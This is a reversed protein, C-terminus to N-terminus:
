LRAVPADGSLWRKRRPGWAGQDSGRSREWGQLRSPGSGAGQLPSGVTGLWCILVFSVAITMTGRLRGPLGAAVLRGATLTTLDEELDDLAAAPRPPVRWRSTWRSLRSSYRAPSGAAAAVPRKTAACRRASSPPVM